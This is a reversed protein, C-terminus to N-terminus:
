MCFGNVTWGAFMTSEERILFGPPLHQIVSFILNGEPVCPFIGPQHNQARGREFIISNMLQSSSMGLMHFFLLSGFWWGAPSKWTGHTILVPIAIRDRGKTIQPLLTFDGMSLCGHMKGLSRLWTLLCKTNEDNKQARSGYFFSFGICSSATPFSDTFSAM